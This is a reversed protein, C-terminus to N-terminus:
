RIVDFAHSISKGSQEFLIRKIHLKNDTRYRVEYDFGAVTNSRKTQTNTYLEVSDASFVGTFTDYDPMFSRLLVRFERDQLLKTKFTDRGEKCIDNMFKVSNSNRDLYDTYNGAYCLRDYLESSYTTSKWDIGGDAAELSDVEVSDIFSAYSSKPDNKELYRYLNDEYITDLLKLKVLEYSKGNFNEENNNLYEFITDEKQTSRCSMLCLITSFVLGNIILKRYM